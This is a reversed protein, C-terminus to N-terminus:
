VPHVVRCLEAPQLSDTMVVKRIPDSAKSNLVQHSTCENSSAYISVASQVPTMRNPSPFHHFTSRLYTIYLPNHRCLMHLYSYIAISTSLCSLSEKWSHFVYRRQQQKGPGICAICRTKRRGEEKTNRECM